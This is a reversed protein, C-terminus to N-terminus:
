ETIYFHNIVIDFDGDNLKFNKSMPIDGENYFLTILHRQIRIRLKTFNILDISRDKLVSKKKPKLELIKNILSEKTIESEM